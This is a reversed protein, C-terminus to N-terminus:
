GINFYGDDVVVGQRPIEDDIHHHVTDVPLNKRKFIGGAEFGIQISPAPKIQDHRFNM